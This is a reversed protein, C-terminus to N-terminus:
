GRRAPTKGLVAAAPDGAAVNFLLFTLLVVGLLILISYCSRRIIFNLMGIFYWSFGALVLRKVQIKGSKRYFLLVTQHFFSNDTM